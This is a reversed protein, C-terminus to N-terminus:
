AKSLPEECINVADMMMNMALKPATAARKRIRRLLDFRAMIIMTVLKVMVNTAIGNKMLPSPTMRAKLMNIKATDMVPRAIGVLYAADPKITPSEDPM